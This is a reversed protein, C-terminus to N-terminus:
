FLRAVSSDRFDRSHSYSSARRTGDDIFDLCQGRRGRGAAPERALQHAALERWLRQTM